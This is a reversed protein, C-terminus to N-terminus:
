EPPNQSFIVIGDNQKICKAIDKWLSQKEYKGGIRTQTVIDM